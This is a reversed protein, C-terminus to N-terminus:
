FFSDMSAVKRIVCRVNGFYRSCRINKVHSRYEGDGYCDGDGGGGGDDDDDDDDAAAAAAAAAANTIIICLLVILLIEAATHGFLIIIADFFSVFM